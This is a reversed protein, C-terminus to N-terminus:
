GNLDGGGFLLQFIKWVFCIGLGGLFLWGVSIGGLGPFPFNFFTLIIHQIFEVAEALPQIMDPFDPM